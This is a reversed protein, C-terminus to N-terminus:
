IIQPSFLYWDFKASQFFKDQLHEVFCQKVDAFTKNFAFQRRLWNKGKLWIDEVPNQEPANPALLICTVPWENEPLGENVEALYDRMDAFRHYTAGDWIFWLRADPYQQQLWKVYTVTHEGNGTSFAKLHFQHTLLNIAGYYTQKQRINAISVEIPQNRHGWALGCVDGWLLHCEDELFVVIEGREIEAQHQIVKKKIEERKHLIQAEDRKPNAAISRHYSMGGASMLDYYSQKSLYVVGYEGEIYDRVAEVEITDQEKIWAVVGAREEEKLYAPKGRYALHLGTAGKAQYIKKWKSVYQESVNLLHSIQKLKIGNQLMKVSLARKTERADTANSIMDDLSEM